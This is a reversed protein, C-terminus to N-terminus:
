SGPGRDSAARLSYEPSDPFRSIMESRTIGEQEASRMWVEFGPADATRRLLGSYQLSANVEDAVAARFEPSDSLALLV